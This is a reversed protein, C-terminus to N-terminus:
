WVLLTTSVQIWLPFNMSATSTKNQFSVQFDNAVTYLHLFAILQIMM